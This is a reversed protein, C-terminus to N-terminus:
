LHNSVPKSIIHVHRGQVSINGDVFLQIAEPLVEMETQFVRAALDDASDSALVPVPRQLIIPGHDYKNDALHVTCGTIKAGFDVVAQHVRIGYYGKGCFAPILSPHINIVKGEYRTPILYFHM